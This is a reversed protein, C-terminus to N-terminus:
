GSESHTRTIVAAHSKIMCCLQDVLDCRRHQHLAMMLSLYTAQSGQQQRWTQLMVVRREDETHNDRQIAVLKEEPIGLLHGLMKWSVIEISIEFIIGQSCVRSVDEWQLDHLYLIEDLTPRAMGLSAAM